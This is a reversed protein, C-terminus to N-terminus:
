NLLFRFVDNMNAIIMLLFLLFMGVMQAKVVVKQSPKRGTIMEYVIFVAHGGDLAPIPLINMFALIVSLFATMSWFYYGDFSSPFLSGISMFGGVSQVGAKTFVYKMDNAYGFLKGFGKKVGVGISELFGYHITEVEFYARMSKMYVGIHGESDPTVVVDVLSDGRSVVLKVPVNKNESFLKVCSYVYAARLSDGISVLSDGAQLGARAARSDEMVSDVVFPYRYDLLGTKSELVQSMFDGPIAFTTEKGDRLVTVSDAELLMRVYKEDMSVLEEGDARLLIDGDQFGASKALDTFEMGYKVNKLPIYSDGYHFAIMTYIVLALLFNFVVGMVIIILRQWAPKSRFEWPQPEKKMQETDMSEDIMGSLKVYGGLPLWGIGYTTESNKPKYKFLSFWPNFFMYFKEVRVGFLKAMLFHGFEHIMVLLSLSAFFQLLVTM